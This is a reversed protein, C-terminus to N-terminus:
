RGCGTFKYKELVNYNTKKLFYKNGSEDILKYSKSSLKILDSISIEYYKVLSEKYNRVFDNM